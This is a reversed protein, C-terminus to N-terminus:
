AGAALLAHRAAALKLLDPTFDSGFAKWLATLHGPTAAAGILDALGAHDPQEAPAIWHRADARMAKAKIALHAAEWGKAIDVPRVDCRAGGVPLHVVDARAQDVGTLPTREGTTPDYLHGHAYIALQVAISLGSYDVSSGTKLDVIRRSGDPMVRLRDFSGAVQLDDCVVFKEMGAYVWGATRKLYAGVDGVFQAPYPGPDRGEDLTQTLRHLATGIEARGHAQAADLAQQALQNLKTKNADLNERHAAVSVMIHDALSAGVLTMRQKWSTLAAQDELVKGLSSARTYPITSGDPQRIMPRGYRDRPIEARLGDWANSM